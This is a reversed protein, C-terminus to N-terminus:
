EAEEVENKEMSAFANKYSKKRKKGKKDRLDIEGCRAKLKVGPAGGRMVPHINAKKAWEAGCRGV